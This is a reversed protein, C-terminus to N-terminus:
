HSLVYSVKWGFVNFRWCFSEGSEVFVPVDIYAARHQELFAMVHLVSQGIKCSEAVM